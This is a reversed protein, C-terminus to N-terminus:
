HSETKHFQALGEKKVTGCCQCYFDSSQLIIGIDEPDFYKSSEMFENCIACIPEDSFILDVTDKTTKIQM